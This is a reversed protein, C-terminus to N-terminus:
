WWGRFWTRTAKQFEGYNVIVDMEVVQRPSVENVRFSLTSIGYVNTPPPRFEDTGKGPWHVQVTITGGEIPNWLQDTLIIDVTQVDGSIILAKQTFALVRVDIIEVTEPLNNLTLSEDDNMEMVSHEFYLQGLDTLVMREGSPNEPRWEMRVNEFYQVNRGDRSEMNSIPLGFYKGGAYKDYFQLFAYCVEKGTEEFTRCGEINDPIPMEPAGASYFFTGLDSIQVVKTGFREIIELRMNQFYQCTVGSDVCQMEGSIPFGFILEPDNISLYFEKIIGQVSYGTEPFFLEDTSQASILNVPLIFFLALISLIIGVRFIRM